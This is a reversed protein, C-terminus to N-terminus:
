QNIVWIFKQGSNLLIKCREMIESLKKEVVLLQIIEYQIYRM